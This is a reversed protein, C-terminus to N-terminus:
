KKVKEPNKPRGALIKVGLISELWALIKGVFFIIKTADNIATEKGLAKGGVTLAAITATMAVGAVTRNISEHSQILFFVVTAGVAGSLTGCIDGVVDNCFSAVKPASRILRLAQRAGPVKKASKAHFPVEIAAAAAIGVMDFFIGILIIVVLLLFAITLEVRDLLVQSGIGVLFAIVFTGLGIYVAHKISTSINNNGLFKVEHSSYSEPPLGAPLYQPKPGAPKGM